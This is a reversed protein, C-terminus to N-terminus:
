GRLLECVRIYFANSDFNIDESDNISECLLKTAQRLDQYKSNLDNLETELRLYEMQDVEKM